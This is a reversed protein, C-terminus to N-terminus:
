KILKLFDRVTKENYKIKNKKFYEKIIPLVQKQHKSIKKRNFKNRKLLEVLPKYIDDNPQNIEVVVAKKVTAKPKIVENQIVEVRIKKSVDATYEDNWPNFYTDEAIVELKINGTDNEKLIGKVGKIPIICEGLMDVTGYFILNQKDSELILRTTAEQLSAGELQIKCKFNDQKDLFIKYM